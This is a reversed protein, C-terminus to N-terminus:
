VEDREACLTVSSYMSPQLRQRDGLFTGLQQVGALDKAKLYAEKRTRCRFFGDFEEVDAVAAVRERHNHSIHNGAFFARPKKVAMNVLLVHTPHDREELPQRSRTNLRGAM